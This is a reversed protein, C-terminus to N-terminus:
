KLNKKPIAGASRRAWAVVDNYGLKGGFIDLASGVTADIRNKGISRIQELDDLSCVGGAYTIPIHSSDALLMLLKADIGSQKGEVDVAHVLFEACYEALASLTGESIEVNTFKQWRDTVVFYHGNKKRCSLDLVVRGAGYTQSVRKLAQEDVVGNRFVYSTIILHSAGSDLFEKGNSGDIGGGVALGGPFARLAELAADRNGPGLMIVHGGFLADSQYLKAFHASGSESEFNTILSNSDTERLSSGVIQKVKGEHLDICPRFLM